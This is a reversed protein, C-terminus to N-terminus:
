RIGNVKSPLIRTLYKFLLPFFIPFLSCEFLSKYKGSAPEDVDKIAAWLFLQVTCSEAFECQPHTQSRAHRGDHGLPERRRLDMTHGPSCPNLTFM